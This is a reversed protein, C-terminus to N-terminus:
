WSVPGKLRVFTPLPVRASFAAFVKEPPRMTFAPMTFGVPALARPGFAPKTVTFLPPERSMLACFRSACLIMMLPAPALNPNGHLAKQYESLAEKFRRQRFYTNGLMLHGLAFSPNDKVAKTLMAQAEDLKGSKVLQQVTRLVGVQGQQVRGVQPQWQNVESM